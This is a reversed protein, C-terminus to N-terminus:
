HPKPAPVCGKSQSFEAAAAAAAAATGGLSVLVEV